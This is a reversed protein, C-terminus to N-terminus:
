NIRTAYKVQFKFKVNVEARFLFHGRIKKNVFHLVKELRNESYCFVSFRETNVSDFLLVLTKKGLHFNSKWTQLCDLCSFFRILFNLDRSIEVRYQFNGNPKKICFFEVRFYRSFRFKVAREM